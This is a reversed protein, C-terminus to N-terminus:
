KSSSRRRVQKRAPPRTLRATLKPGRKRALESPGVARLHDDVHEKAAEGESLHAFSAEPPGVLFTCREALAEM